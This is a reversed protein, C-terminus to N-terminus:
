KENFYRISNYLRNLDEILRNIEPDASRKTAGAVNAIMRYGVCGRGLIVINSESYFKLDTRWYDGAETEISQAVFSELLAKIRENHAITRELVQKLYDSNSEIMLDLLRSIYPFVFLRIGKDDHGRDDMHDEIEFTETFYDLVIPSSKVIHTVMADDYHSSFDSASSRWWLCHVNYLEPIERARLRTLMDTDERDIAFSIICRRLQDKTALYYQLDNMDPKRVFIENDYEDFKIRSLSTGAGFTLVYDQRKGSDFWIYGKDMLFKILDYNQFAIAYDLVTKGYEDPNCVPTNVNDIYKMWIGESHSQAVTYHTLRDKIPGNLKGASLIQEYSVELLESFVPLDYIQISKSGKKIQSLRNAMNRIADETPKANIMRLYDMCFKRASPFKEEILGAIYTGIKENDIEILM